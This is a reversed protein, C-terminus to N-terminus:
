GVYDSQIKLKEDAIIHISEEYFAKGNADRPFTTHCTPASHFEGFIPSHFPRTASSREAGVM